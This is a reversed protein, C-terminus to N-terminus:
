DPSVNVYLLIRDDKPHFIVNAFRRYRRFSIYNKTTIEEVDGLALPQTTITRYFHSAPGPSPLPWRGGLDHPTPVVTLSPVVIASAFPLPSVPTACASSSSSGAKRRPITSRASCAM